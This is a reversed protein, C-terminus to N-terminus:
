GVSKRSTEPGFVAIVIAAVAATISIAVFISTAGWATLMQAVILPMLVTLLKAFANAVGTCRFRVQTPFLEPTYVAIVACFTVYLSTTLVFGVIIAPVTSTQAAYLLGFVATVVFAPVITRKRGIRDVFAASLICGLPAGLLMVTSIWLSGSLNIGKKVLLTPVWSTFTYQTVNTAGVAILAVFLCLAVSKATNRTGSAATGAGASTNGTGINEGRVDAIPTDDVGNAELTKVIADAEDMHGHLALWRPSEPIDRRLWWIIGALVGIAVFMPRWTWRPIIFACLLMTVPAAANAFISIIACWKGRSKAPAFENVMAYGTVIEAGLGIGAGLRCVTLFMMTPAFAGILTFGGFLLLNLQYAVRRGFLDGIFGALLSGILLGAFGASLFLSNQQVTSWKTELSSSAVTSAMYVDIGDLMMGAAVLAVIRKLVPTVNTRDIRNVITRVASQPDAAANAARSGSQSAPSTAPTAISTSM